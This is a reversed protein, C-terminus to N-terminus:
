YKSKLTKTLNLFKIKINCEVIIIALKDIKESLDAISVLM